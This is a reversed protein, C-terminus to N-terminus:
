TPWRESVLVLQAARVADVPMGHELAYDIAVDDITSSV